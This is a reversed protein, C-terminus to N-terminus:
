RLFWFSHWFCTGKRLIEIIPELQWLDNDTDEISVFATNSKKSSKGGSAGKQKARLVALNRYSKSPVRNSSLLFSFAGQMAIYIFSLLRLVNTLGRRMDESDRYYILTTAFVRVSRYVAIAGFCWVYSVLSLDSIPSIRESRNCHRWSSRQSLKETLRMGKMISVEFKFSSVREWLEM